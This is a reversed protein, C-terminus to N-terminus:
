RKISSAFEMVKETPLATYIEVDRFFQLMLSFYAFIHEESDAELITVGKCVPTGYNGIM